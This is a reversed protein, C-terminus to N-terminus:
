PLMIAWLEQNKFSIWLDLILKTVIATPYGTQIAINSAGEM